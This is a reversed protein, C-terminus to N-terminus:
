GHDIEERPHRDRDIARLRFGVFLTGGFIVARSGTLAMRRAIVNERPM